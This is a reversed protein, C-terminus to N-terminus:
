IVENELKLQRRAALALSLTGGDLYELEGGLPVGQAIQTCSVGCPLQSAVYHATAKGEVTPNTALIVEEVGNEEIVKLFIPIGLQDPGIGELPSLRGHLVFYLGRYSNTQEIALLDLPGEVLCLQKTNRKNSSCITCVDVETYTQCQRCNTVQSIALSLAESLGLGKNRGNKALLHFALRQASKPGIGPLRCLADILQKTLPSFM